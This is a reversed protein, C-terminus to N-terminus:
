LNLLSLGSNVLNSILNNGRGAISDISTMSGAIHRDYTFTCNIDLLEGQSEYQVKSASLASPFLGIFSYEMFRDVNREFKYIRTAESKYGTAPDDPYRMRVTYNKQNYQSISQTNGSISYEMWHELFKLGKYEDDCYFSLSLTDYLRRHAFKESVGYYNSSEFTALSAGPLEASYCMLGFDSDIFTSDVGRSAMYTRLGPKIGGFQVQFFNKRSLNGLLPM